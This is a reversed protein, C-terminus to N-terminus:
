IERVLEKRQGSTLVSAPMRWGAGFLGARGLSVLSAVGGVAGIGLLTFGVAYQWSAPENVDTSHWGAATGSGLAVGVVGVSLVTGAAILWVARWQERQRAVATPTSRNNLISDAEACREDDASAM